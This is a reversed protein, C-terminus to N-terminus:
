RFGRFVGDAEVSEAFDSFEMNALRLNNEVGWLESPVCRFARGPNDLLDVCLIPQEPNSQAEADAVFLVPADHWDSAALQEPQTGAFSRDDVVRLLAQFGDPSAAGAARM